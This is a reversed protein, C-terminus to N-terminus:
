QWQEGVADEGAMTMRSITFRRVSARCIRLVSTHPPFATFEESVMKHSLLATSREKQSIMIRM